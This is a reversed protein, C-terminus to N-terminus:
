RSLRPVGECKWLGARVRRRRAASGLPRKEAVMGGAGEQVTQNQHGSFWKETRWSETISGKMSEECRQAEVRNEVIVAKLLWRIPCDVGWEKAECRSGVGERHIGWVSCVSGGM